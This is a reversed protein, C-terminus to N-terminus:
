RRSNGVGGCNEPAESPSTEKAGFFLSLAGNDTPSHVRDASVRARHSHDTAPVPRPGRGSPWLAPASRSESSWRLCTRTNQAAVPVPVSHFQTASHRFGQDEGVAVQAGGICHDGVRTCCHMSVRACRDATPRGSASIWPCPVSPCQLPTAPSPGQPCKRHVYFHLVRCNCEVGEAPMPPSLLSVRARSCSLQPIGPLATIGSVKASSRRKRKQRQWSHVM